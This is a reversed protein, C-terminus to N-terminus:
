NSHVLNTHESPSSTFPSEGKGRSTRRPVRNANMDCESSDAAEGESANADGCLSGEVHAGFTTGMRQQILLAQYYEFSQAVMHVHEDLHATPVVPANALPEGNAGAPAAGANGGSAVSQSSSGPADRGTSMSAPPHSVPRAVILRLRGTSNQRLISAVQDAGLGRVNFHNVYLLHDGVRLCGNQVCVRCIPM